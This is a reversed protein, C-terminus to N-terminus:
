QKKNADIWDVAKHVILAALEDLKDKTGSLVFKTKNTKNQRINVTVSVSNGNVIYRGSLRCADPSNASSIFVIESEAGKSSLAALEANILKGLDLDDDSISVDNNQFNGAAFIQKEEPFKIKETVEEDVLGINFDTNSVIQTEQGVGEEKAVESVTRGAANFWRSINLFKGDELIDPQEKITKLLSYALYGHAHRQSEFALKDSASATLIFLGSKENLKDIAKIQQGKDDGKSAPIGLKDDGLKVFDNIAQGSHCADLILIRKTAKINQPKIWETLETTSIGAVAYADFDAADATMYYFLKKGEGEMVGHGSLFIFLIDNATAKAGIEELVKKISNKEPLLYHEKATTLNYMFVHEEGLLKGAAGKLANSIDTADIAPFDLDMTEGKYDSVGVMVAYLNPPPAPKETKDISISAVRSSITNDATYAKLTITNMQGDPLYPIFENKIIRFEYIDGHKTLQEPKRTDAIAGNISLSIDGLGGRRPTIAFYYEDPNGRVEEVLPTLGCIDVENLTKANISEGKNIREVLNPVWLEDKVQELEIVETGCTFYLLKRAADSGDYRSNKDVVLYDDNDIAFFTYLLEGTTANWIKCTNDTSATIIKKGDPSFQASMVFHTHGKLESLLVGSAADWIRATNDASGTILKTGDSNFQASMVWYTHGKLIVLLKGTVVDWIRATSDLSATVIKKGDRSFQASALGATHGKLNKLLKGTAADWIKAGGNYFAALIKKGDPSFQISNISGGTEKLNTLLKGTMADWIIVAADEEDDAALIKKGDPSFQASNFSLGHKKINTLFKGTMADWIKITSDDSATVIKKGDPSFQASNITNHHGKLNALLKGTMADWIKATSDEATTLIKKGGNPDGPGVPSFWAATFVFSHGKLHALINGSIADWIIATGDDSATVIKTGDPSFQAFRIVDTHGRLGILLKGTMADWVKATSDVSVSVIKKGDPSFGAFASLVEDDEMDDLFKADGPHEQINILLKGSIADWIKTTLDLSATVIKNGDPSFGASAIANGHGKLDAFLKGTGADWTKVVSDASATVIKKGDPSFQASFLSARNKLTTLVNGTVADWIKASSDLSATVIKIGDPSFMASLVTERHGILNALLEGTGADWIKATHDYSATVIKKGDPSFQASYVMDKHGQLDILLKGTVADWIKATHDRSATVIKKGDPSFQATQLPGTHGRLDALINGTVADWIKATNDPSATVIKKGDPSFQASFVFLTHGIPLMLKPEQAICVDYLSSWFCLCVFFISRARM